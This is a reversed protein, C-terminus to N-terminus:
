NLEYKDSLHIRKYLYKYNIVYLTVIIGIRRTILRYIDSGPCEPKLQFINHSFVIFFINM